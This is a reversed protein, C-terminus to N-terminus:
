LVENNIPGGEDFYEGEVPADQQREMADFYPILADLDAAVVDALRERKIFKMISEVPVNIKAFSAVMKDWRPKILPGVADPAIPATVPITAAHLAAAEAWNGPKPAFRENLTSATATKVAHAPTVNDAQDLEEALYLDSLDEPFARRMSQAEACKGLMVHPKSKWVSGEKDGPFFEDWRASAVFPQREGAVLRYVTAVARVLEGKDNYHYDPEDNGAYLGTRAAQARMADITTIFTPQRGNKTMRIQMVIRRSFPNFGKSKCVTAYLRLEADNAGHCITARLTDLEDKALVALQHNDDHRRVVMDQNSM